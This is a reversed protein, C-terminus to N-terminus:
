PVDYQTRRTSVAIAPYPLASRVLGPKAPKPVDLKRFFRFRVIERRPHRIVCHRIRRRRPDSEGNIGCRCVLPLPRM